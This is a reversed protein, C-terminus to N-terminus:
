MLAIASQGIPFPARSVEFDWQPILLLKTATFLAREHQLPSPIVTPYAQFTTVGITPYEISWEVTAHQDQFAAAVVDVASKLAAISGAKVELSFQLVTRRNAYNALVAMDNSWPEIWSEERQADGPHFDLVRYPSTNLDLTQNVVLRHPM